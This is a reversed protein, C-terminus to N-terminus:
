RLEMLAEGREFAFVRLEALAGDTVLRENGV